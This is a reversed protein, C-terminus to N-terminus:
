SYSLLIGILWGFMLANGIYGIWGLWKLNKDGKVAMYGFVVGPISLWLNGLCLVSVIAQWNFSESILPELPELVPFSAYTAMSTISFMVLFFLSKKM